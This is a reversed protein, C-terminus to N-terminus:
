PPTSRAVINELEDCFRNAVHNWTNSIAYEHAFLVYEHVRPALTYVAQLEDVVASMEPIAGITYPNGSLPATLECHDYCPILMARGRAWSGLGSYDPAIVPVGCAMAELAPLGYGEGQTTTLYCDFCNYVHPMEDNDTGDGIRPLSKIVHGGIGFYRVLRDIDCGLEGTPSVHLYLYSNDANYTSIWQAFYQLTLDLRKRPQNRGVVGVIFADEHPFGDIDIVRQRSAVKDRSYFVETDVGLGIVSVPALVNCRELEERAFETWTVIHALHNLHTASFAHNRADMALWSVIPPIPIPYEHQKVRSRNYSLLNRMYGEINWPDQLVVVVDFADDALLHPLRMQGMADRGGKHPSYCPVIEYPYPHTDGYYNIGLVTVDHGRTHLEGCVAHTCRAFGTSVCADGIWLVRLSM